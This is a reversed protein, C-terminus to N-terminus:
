CKGDILSRLLGIIREARKDWTYSQVDDKARAALREALGRERLLKQIGEALAHPDEPKVLLANTRDSLIERMSPLDSAVIPVGAAMYEFLKLPSTFRASILDTRLPLVAVSAEGLHRVVELPPVQGHFSVRGDVDLRQCQEISKELLAGSGGLVHLEAEPLYQMAEFLIDTGKWPFLQGVYIIRGQRRSPSLTQYLGPHFGDPVIEIPARLYFSERFKDALGRTIAVLGDMRPYIRAEKKRIKESRENRNATLHFIEHAEFIIPLKFYSRLASFFAAPKLHRTFIAHYTRQRLLQGMKLGCLLLFVGDWSIRLFPGEERRFMAISHIRLNEHNGLGYHPLADAVPDIPNRGILLDVHCGLRALAHATQFIQQFRARRFDIGEPVPYLIRLPKGWKQHPAAEKKM